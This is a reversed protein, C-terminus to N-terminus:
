SRPTSPSRVATVISGSITVILTQRVTQGDPLRVLASLTVEKAVNKADRATAQMGTIQFDVVTGQERPEFVVTAVSALATRDRLRSAAFFQSLLTQEAPVTCAVLTCAGLACGALTLSAMLGASAADHRKM